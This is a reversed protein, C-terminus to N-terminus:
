GFCVAGVALASWTLGLLAWFGHVPKLGLQQIPKRAFGLLMIFVTAMLWAGILILAWSSGNFYIPLPVSGLIAATWMTAVVWAVALAIAATGAWCLHVTMLLTGLWVAWSAQFANLMVGALFYGLWVGYLYVFAKLVRM